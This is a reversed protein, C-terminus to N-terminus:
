MALQSREKTYDPDALLYGLQKELQRRGADNLRNVSRLLRSEWEEYENVEETMMIYDPSVRYLHSLRILAMASIKRSGNEYRSYTVRDVGIYNAVEEQSLGREMRLKYLVQYDHEIM